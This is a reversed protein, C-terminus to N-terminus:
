KNWSNGFVILHSYSDEWEYDWDLLESFAKLEQCIATGLCREPVPDRAWYALTRCAYGPEERFGGVMEAARWPEQKSLLDAASTFSDSCRPRHVIEVQANLARSITFIAKTVTQTLLCTSHGNKYSFFLGLNDTVIRVSKNKIAEIDLMLGFCSAIAEMLTLKHSVLTGASSPLGSRIVGEWKGLSFIPKQGPIDLM